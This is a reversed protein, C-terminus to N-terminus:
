NIVKDISSMEKRKTIRRKNRLKNVKVKNNNYNKRSKQKQKNKYQLNIKYMNRYKNLIKIRLENM